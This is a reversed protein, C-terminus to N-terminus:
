IKELIVATCGQALFGTVFNLPASHYLPAPSLYISEETAGYILLARGLGTDEDDEQYPLPNLTLQRKVGKPRGTTGSSYLMSGGQCEDEIPDQSMERIADEYSEYGESPGDLMFKSVNSLSANLNQATDELFKSTIFAKAECDKVIYEVESPQLRWSIATYQLGSRWAAFIIPFFLFHNELM